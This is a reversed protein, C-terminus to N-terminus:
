SETDTTIDGQPRKLQPSNDEGELDGVVLGILGNITVM